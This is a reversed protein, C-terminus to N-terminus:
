SEITTSAEILLEIFSDVKRDEPSLPPLKPLAKCAESGKTHDICVLKLARGLVQQMLGLLFKKACDGECTTLARDICDVVDNYACCTHPLVEKSPAKALARQLSGKMEKLCTNIKPGASNMCTIVEHYQKYTDSGATCVGETTEQLSKLTLLVATQSVGELCGDVFRLTCNIQRKEKACKEEFGKSSTALHVYNGYPIYDDGCKRVTELKCGEKLVAQVTGTLSAALLVFGVASKAFM